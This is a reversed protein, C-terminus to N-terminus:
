STGMDDLVGTIWGYWPYMKERTGCTGSHVCLDRGRRDFSCEKLCDRDTYGWDDHGHDHVQGTLPQVLCCEEKEVGGAEGGYQGDPCAVELAM